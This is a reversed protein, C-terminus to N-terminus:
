KKFGANRGEDSSLEATAADVKVILSPMYKGSMFSRKTEAAQRLNRVIDKLVVRFGRGRWPEEPDPNLVFHLVEDPQLVTDGYRIVYSGDPTGHFSVKSPPLPILEDILDDVIRPYVVANGDGELLMTHVIWYVWAKRTMLSYPNIDIKRSLENKERVDGEPTNRMLYITMSSILDAIRRVAIRVEPCDSLRTYGQIDLSDFTVFWHSNRRDFLRGVRKLWKVHRRRGEAM